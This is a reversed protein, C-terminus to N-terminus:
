SSRSVLIDHLRELTETWGQEHLTRRAETAFPGQDLDLRTAEGEEHFWLEVVTEQDDPDPEEYRFTYALRTPVDVVRFEGALFFSPGEPPQMEIRYRGGVRLDLEVSPATFGTPGWWRALSEPEAHMGFVLPAPAPLLREVHVRVTV